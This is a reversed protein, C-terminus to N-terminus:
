DDRQTEHSEFCCLVSDWALESAIHSLLTEDMEPNEVENTTAVFLIDGDSHTHFPYIARAMSSHVQRALQQARQLKRNTVILTLTTNGNSPEGLYGVLADLNAYVDARDRKGTEPYYHGRVANGERDIIGGVANVVTFVLVKTPGAQFCAAGQGASEGQHPPLLWKGVSASRGAGRPGLPFSGAVASRLAARGLAKDPYVANDRFRWDWIIAGGVLPITEWDIRYQQQALLEARVGAIVELGFLSGGAFCIAHHWGYDTGAAGVAGGREDVVTSVGDPFHFVTCGTPGEEYEAVGIRLAPFDFALKPGDFSTRPALNTNDNNVYNEASM